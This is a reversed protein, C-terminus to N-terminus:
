RSRKSCAPRGASSSLCRCSRPLRLSEGTCNANPYAPFYVPLYILWEAPATVTSPRSSTVRFSDVKPRFGQREGTQPNLIPIVTAFTFGTATSRTTIIDASNKPSMAFLELETAETMSNGGNLIWHLAQSNLFVSNLGPDLPSAIGPTSLTWLRVFIPPPSKPSIPVVICRQYLHTSIESIIDLTRVQLRRCERKLKRSDLLNSDVAAM